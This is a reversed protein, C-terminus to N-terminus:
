IALRGNALNTGVLGNNVNSIITWTVKPVNKPIRGYVEREFDEIIEPRRQKWWMEPTTVPQGNKLRLPDPLNPFPNAISEDYNAENTAGRRGSPGPRLKTIGLQDMMNKHDQATTWTNSSTSSTTRSQQASAPLIFLCAALLSLSRLFVLSKM